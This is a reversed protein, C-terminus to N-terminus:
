AQFREDFRRHYAYYGCSPVVNGDPFLHQCSCKSLRRSDFSWADMMQLLYITKVRQEVIVLREKPSMPRDVPYLSDLLVRLRALALENEETRDKMAWLRDIAERLFGSVRDVEAFNANKTAEIIEDLEGLPLLATWTGDQVLYYGIAACLPNPMPLPMFDRRRFAGSSSEELADIAGPITLRTLPDGPFRSGNAGAFTMMSLIVSRVKPRALLSRCLEGLEGDNIGRAALILPVADIGWTGLRDLARQQTAFPVGRLVKAGPGDHHLSVYVRPHKALEDLFADDEAIRIGNTNLAIRDVGDFREIEQIIEFIKPHITPEGGSIALADVRGQARFLREVCARVEDPGLEFTKQNNALCTPCNANCRNSIEIAATGAIQRHAACLGCDSPCGREIPGSNTKPRVPPVDFKPLWDWWRTDGCALGKFPGHEPCSREVFVGAPGGVVRGPVLRSCSPCMSTTPYYLQEEGATARVDSM